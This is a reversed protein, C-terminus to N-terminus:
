QCRKSRRKEKKEKKRKKYKSQYEAPAGEEFAAGGCYLMVLEVPNDIRPIWTHNGIGRSIVCRGDIVGATYKPFIGQGPAYVGRGFVRWHGGHAHGCVILDIDTSRLHPAYYEPHHCLLIKFGEFASFRTVAEANPANRKGNIGSTLGCVVAGDVCVCEDDLLVAGTQAIRARIEESPFVPVPHRWPNGKHYCAIEHNGLSYYTPAIAACARLFAYGSAQEDALDTDEMLDGPILIMQPAERKLAELHAEHAQGHLDAVVAIRMPAVKANPQLVYRTIQTKGNKDRILIFLILLVTCLILAGSMDIWVDSARPGRGESFNQHIEDTIAYILTFSLASLYRLVIQGKWTLLFLFTLAGLTGFELMHAVKRLPAHMQTVIADKETQPKNEFDKVVTQAVSTTVKHSTRDSERGDQASFLFIVVMNCLILVGLIVRLLILKRSKKKM